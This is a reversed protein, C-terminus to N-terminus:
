PATFDAGLHVPHEFRSWAAHAAVRAAFDANLNMSQTPRDQVQSMAAKLTDAFTMRVAGHVVQRRLATTAHPLARHRPTVRGM